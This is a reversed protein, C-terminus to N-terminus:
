SFFFQIYHVIETLDEATQLKCHVYMGKQGESCIQAIVQNFLRIKKM